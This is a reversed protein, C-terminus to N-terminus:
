GRRTRWRRALAAASYPLAVVLTRLVLLFAIEAMSVYPITAATTVTTWGLVVIALVKLENRGFRAYKWGLLAAVLVAMIEM